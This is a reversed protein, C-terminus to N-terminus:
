NGGYMSTWKRFIYGTKSKNPYIHNIPTYKLIYKKTLGFNIELASYFLEIETSYRFDRGVRASLKYFDGSHFPSPTLEIIADPHYLMLKNICYVLTKLRELQEM